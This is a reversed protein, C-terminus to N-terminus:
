ARRTVEVAYGDDTRDLVRVEYGFRELAEGPALAANWHPGLRRTAELDFPRDPAVVRLPGRGERRNHDAVSVLVGEAPLAADFGARRRGEVYLWRGAGLSLRLASAGVRYQTREPSWEEVAIWGALAKTWAMPHPRGGVPDASVRGMLDWGGVYRSAAVSATVRATHYDYLDPLGLIHGFEHAVTGWATAAHVVAGRPVTDGVAALAARLRPSNWRPGVAFCGRVAAGNPMVALVVDAGTEGLRGTLRRWFRVRDTLSRRRLHFASSPRHVRLRRVDALTWRIAGHSVERYYADVEAIVRPAWAASPPPAADAFALSVVLVRRRGPGWVVPQPSAALDLM